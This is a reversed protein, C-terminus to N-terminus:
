MEQEMINFKCRKYHWYLFNIFKKNLAEKSEQSLNIPEIDVEGNPMFETFNIGGIASAYQDQKGIPSKIM